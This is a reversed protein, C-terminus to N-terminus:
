VPQKDSNLIMSDLPAKKGASAADEILVDTKAVTDFDPAERYLMNEGSSEDVGKKDSQMIMSADYKM